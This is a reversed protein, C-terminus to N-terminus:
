DGGVAARSPTADDPDINYKNTGYALNKLAYMVCMTGGSMILATAAITPNNRVLQTNGLGKKLAQFEKQQAPITNPPGAFMDLFSM